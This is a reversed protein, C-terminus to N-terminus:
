AHLKDLFFNNEFSDELFDSVNNLCLVFFTLVDKYIDSDSSNKASFLDIIEDFFFWNDWFYGKVEPCILIGGFLTCIRDLFDVELVIEFWFM